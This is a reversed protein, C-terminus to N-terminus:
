IILKKVTKKKQKVSPLIEKHLTDEELWCNEKFKNNSSSNFLRRINVGLCELMFECEVRELGRRRIRDYNMNNKIEGFTGEVQISRNVRIEIGKPSCLNRRAEEKFLEYQPVLEIYRYDLDKNKLLKKCKYAYGCNNCGTFKYLKGEKNRQHHLYDFPVNEGICTNLCLVGDFFTYFLQPKKGTTEGEWQQFKVYNMIEHQKLFKYNEYIGYGADACLNEPYFGYYKKYNNAMPILTYYDSRNQYVGYMLILLNSVIVQVNYAAHFDNSLKSYYDEKLVMATADHDTKYYSNRKPGCIMEKEEYEQLKNLYKNGLIYNKQAINKRKGKGMPIKAIDIDNEIAYKTLINKLEEYKVFEKKNIVSDYDISKLYEQIKLNLKKHFATPKWVFNYKNADAEIKTGDLYNDEINLNLEKIIQKNITTFILYQNPLIYENIFDGITSYNPTLGEMIYNVRFDFNCKDEIDRLSSKFFAFCFVIAAFMNFPNYSNRGKCKDNNLNVSEIIEGVGSKDLIQLFNDIKEYEEIVRNSPVLWIPRKITFYSM